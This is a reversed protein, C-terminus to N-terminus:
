DDLPARLMARISRLMYGQSILRNLELLVRMTEDSSMPEFPEVNLDKTYGVGYPDEEADCSYVILAKGDENPALGICGCNYKVM